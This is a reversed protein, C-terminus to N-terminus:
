LLAKIKMKIESESIAGVRFIEVTKNLVSVVTSPIKSRTRGGDIILDLQNGFNEWVENACTPNAGGSLNASTSTIPFGTAKLIAQCIKNDSIRIGITRKEGTLLDSLSNKARFVITLPGPWFHEALVAAAMPFDSTLLKAQQISQALLLIPKDKKRGKLKFIKEVALDNLANVGLGYVTETPYGIVSGAKLIDAALQILESEPFNSNIKVIPM